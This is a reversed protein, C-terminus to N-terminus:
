SRKSEDTGRSLTFPPVRGASSAFCRWAAGHVSAAPGARRRSKGEGEREHICQIGEPPRQGSRQRARAREAPAAGPRKDHGGHRHTDGPGPAGLGGLGDRVFRGRACGRALGPGPAASGRRRAQADFSELHQIGLPQRPLPLRREVALPVAGPDLRHDAAHLPLHAFRPSRECPHVERHVPRRVPHRVPRRVPREADDHHFAAIATDRQAASRGPGSSGPQVVDTGTAREAVFEFTLHLEQRTQGADSSGGAQSGAALDALAIDVQEHFLLATPAQIQLGVVVAVPKCTTPAAAHRTVHVPQQAEAVAQGGPGARVVAPAPVARGGVLQGQARPARPHRQRGATLVMFQAAFERQQPRLTLDIRDSRRRDHREGGPPRAAQGPVDAQFAPADDMHLLRHGQRVRPARDRHRRPQLRHHVRRRAGRGPAGQPHLRAVQAQAVRGRCREIGRAGSGRALVEHQRRIGRHEPLPLAPPQQQAAASLDGVLVQVRRPLERQATRAAHPRPRRSLRGAVM